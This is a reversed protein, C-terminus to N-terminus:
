SRLCDMTAIYVIISVDIKSESMELTSHFIHNKIKRWLLGANGEDM